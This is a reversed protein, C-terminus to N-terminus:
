DKINFIGVNMEDRRGLPIVRREIQKEHKLFVVSIYGTWKEWPVGDQPTEVIVFVRRTSPVGRLDPVRKFVGAGALPSETFVEGVEHDLWPYPVHYNFIKGAPWVSLTDVLSM